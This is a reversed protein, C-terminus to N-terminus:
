REGGLAALAEAFFEPGGFNGSKLALRIDTGAVRLAPVGAAIRPGIELTRAGLGGVVAGSTEGGAVVLDTVGAAVLAKALGAFFGEVAEAVRTRGLRDQTQRVTEPDASTYILPATTQRAAWGAVEEILGPGEVLQAPDLERAPASGAYRAVQERTARSCSGSLIAGRGGGAAWEPERATAGVNAPLGLGIGSGGVLLKMDRCAAGLAVLDRNSIADAIVMARGSPLAARIAEAGRAVIAAPLHAIPWGTQAGLVRRLDADLMPTLPHDQMGSENLLRDGVFLHGQYVSRGTEPFAPCVIVTRAGLDTALAEAVPGINGRDTSDFTSCVKFVIQDAGQAVLWRCAARSQAVAEAMPATRSKLAVIGAEVGPAADEEPVGVYQVARLGGEALTLAMDSAGTFDDAVVGIKV